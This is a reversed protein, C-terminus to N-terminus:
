KSDERTPVGPAWTDIRFAEPGLGPRETVDLEIGALSVRRLQRTDDFWLTMRESVGRGRVKLKWWAQGDPDAATVRGLLELDPQDEGESALLRTLDRLPDILESLVPRLHRRVESDGEAYSWSATGDFGAHFNRLSGFGDPVPIQLHFLGGPGTRLRADALTEVQDGLEGPLYQLVSQLLRAKLGGLRPRFELYDDQLTKKAGDALDKSGPDGSLWQRGVLFLACIGAIALLAPLWLNRRGGPLRKRSWAASSERAIRDVAVSESEPDPDNRQEDFFRRMVSSTTRLREYAERVDPDTEIRQRLLEQETPDLEGDLYLSLEKRLDEETM